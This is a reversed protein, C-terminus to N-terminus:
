MWHVWQGICILRHLDRPLWPADGRVSPAVWGLRRAVRRLREGTWQVRVRVWTVRHSLGWLPHEVPQVCKEAAGLWVAVRQVM